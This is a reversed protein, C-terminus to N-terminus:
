KAIKTNETCGRKKWISNGMKIDLHFIRICYTCDEFWACLVFRKIPFLTKNRIIVCNPLCDTKSFMLM